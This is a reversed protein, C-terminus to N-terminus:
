APPPTLCLPHRAGAGLPGVDLLVPGVEGSTSHRVETAGPWSRPAPLLARHHKRDDLVGDAARRVGEGLSPVPGGFNMAQNMVHLSAQEDRRSRVDLANVFGCPTRNRSLCLQFRVRMWFRAFAMDFKM